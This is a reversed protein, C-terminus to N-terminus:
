EEIVGLQRMFFMRVDATDRVRQDLSKGAGHGAERDVWLLVPKESPSSATKAQVMAAFKRAHMPHVRTDNEGATIMMAPYEVGREVNHYPSYDKLYAFQQPDEASGYEPVWFRAMLFDQYRLMDLLPVGVYAAAFLDPRQVSAAGTLLGGNSGGMIGLQDPNTYGNDVLWEGAAIFDDFVNQKQDLMGAKHWEAGYEGGGRLNAVAYVGGTEFWPFMTASFSPQMSINFGGYGYLITPNTGDLEIGKPAVIFMSVKTGDRSEYWVQKVDVISPDVPIEPRAWLTWDGENAAAQALDVRYISRPTNYSTFTLFAEDRDEFAAIGASGIGPLELEGLSRGERTYMRLTTSANELYDAVVVSKGISISQLVASEREPIMVKWSERDINNLDIAYVIGNPADHSTQLYAIDGIIQVGSRGNSDLLLEQEIWEGTERWHDLNIVWLDNAKTGTWYSKVMWRVDRDVTGYPGWTTALPGETEQEFLVADQDHPTGMEHFKMVGSYPNNVDSLKRYFFGGSDATSGPVWQCGGVKGPIRETLWGGTEVDLVYLTSNEDGARYMGFAMLTGEHNPQTWSVTLLGDESLKNPNLLERDEGDFGERVYIVAQAQNGERKGYFYRNGRVNPTGVSPTEMLERLRAELAERGAISGLRERTYANQSETWEGVEDNMLGMRAPNSNDGELWRFPDVITTGHLHDEVPRQETAPPQAMAPFAALTVACLISSTKM